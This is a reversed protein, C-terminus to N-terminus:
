LQPLKRVIEQELRAVYQLKHTWGVAAALDGSRFAASLEAVVGEQQQRNAALLASLVAPDDTAEVEERAELVTRLCHWASLGGCM